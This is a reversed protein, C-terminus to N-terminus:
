PQEETDSQLNCTVDKHITTDKGYGATIEGAVDRCKDMDDDVYVPEGEATVVYVTSTDDSNNSTM